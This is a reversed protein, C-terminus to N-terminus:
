QVTNHRCYELGMYVMNDHIFAHKLKIINLHSLNKLLDFKATGVKKKLEEFIIVDLFDEKPACM